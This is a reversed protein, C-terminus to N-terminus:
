LQLTRGILSCPTGLRRRSVVSGTVKRTLTLVRLSQGLRLREGMNLIDQSVPPARAVLGCTDWRGQGGQGDCPEPAKEKIELELQLERGQM